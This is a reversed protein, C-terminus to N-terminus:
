RERWLGACVGATTLSLLRSPPLAPPLAGSVMRECISDRMPTRLPDPITQEGCWESFHECYGPWGALVKFMHKCTITCDWDFVIVAGDGGQNPALAVSDGSAM